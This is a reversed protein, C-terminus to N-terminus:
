LGLKKLCRPSAFIGQIIQYCECASDELKQRDLITMQGRSYKIAGEKHLAEAALSISPRALGLMQSLNVQMMQFQNTGVRDQIMLLWRSLRGKAPHVQNCAANQEVMGLLDAIYLRALRQLAKRETNAAQFDDCLMSAVVGPIECIATGHTVNSGLYVHAGIIGENGIIGTGIIQGDQMQILSVYVGSCPFYICDAPEDAKYVIQQAEVKMLHLQPAIQLYEDQPLSALLHNQLPSSSNALTSM